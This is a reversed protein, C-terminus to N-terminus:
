CFIQKSNNGYKEILNKSYWQAPGLLTKIEDLFRPYPRNVVNKILHIM